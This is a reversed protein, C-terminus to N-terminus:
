KENCQILIEEEVEASIRFNTERLRELFPKISDILRESKAKALVGLTGTFQISLQAAIKRARLDDLVLIANPIELVLALASAEGAGLNLEIGKTTVSLPNKIVIWSPLPLSYEEAIASTIFVEAYLKKLIILLELKQLLILCSTDAIVVKHM